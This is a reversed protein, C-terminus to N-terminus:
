EEFLSNLYDEDYTKEGGSYPSGDIDGGDRSSNPSDDNDDPLDAGIDDVSGEVEDHIIQSIADIGILAEIAERLHADLSDLYRIQTKINILIWEIAQLKNYRKSPM